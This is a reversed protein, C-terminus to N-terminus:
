RHFLRTVKAKLSTYWSDSKEGQVQAIALNAAPKKDGEAPQEYPVTDVVTVRYGNFGYTKKWIKGNDDELLLTFEHTDGSNKVTVPYHGTVDRQVYATEYRHHRKSWIFFRFSDFEYEHSGKGVTTWLWNHKL